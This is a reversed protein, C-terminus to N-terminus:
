QKINLIKKLICWHNKNYVIINKILLKCINKDICSENFFLQNFCEKNIKNHFTLRIIKIWKVPFAIKHTNSTKSIEMLYNNLIILSITIWLIWLIWLEKILFEWWKNTLIIRMKSLYRCWKKILILMKSDLYTILNNISLKKIITILIILLSKSWLLNCRRSWFM